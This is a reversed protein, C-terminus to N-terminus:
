SKTRVERQRDVDASDFSRMALTATCRFFAKGRVTPDKINEYTFSVSSDTEPHAAVLDHLVQVHNPLGAM